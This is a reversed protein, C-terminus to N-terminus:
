KGEEEVLLADAVHLAEQAEAFAHQKRDVCLRLVNRLAERLAHNRAILSEDTIPPEVHPPEAEYWHGGIGCDVYPVGPSPKPCALQGELTNWAIGCNRCTFLPEPKKATAM